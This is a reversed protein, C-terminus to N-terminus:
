VWAINRTLYIFPEYVPPLGPRPQPFDHPCIRSFWGNEPQNKEAGGFKKTLFIAFYDKIKAEKNIAKFVPQNKQWDRGFTRV